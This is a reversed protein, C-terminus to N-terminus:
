GQHGPKKCWKFVVPHTSDSRALPHLADNVSIDHRTNEVPQTCGINLPPIKLNRRCVVDVAPRRAHGSARAGVPGLNQLAVTEQSVKLIFFPSPVDEIGVVVVEHSPPQNSVLPLSPNLVMGLALDLRRELVAGFEEILTRAPCPAVPPTVPGTQYPLSVHKRLDGARDPAQRNEPVLSVEAVALLRPAGVCQVKRSEGRQGEHDIREQEIRAPPTRLVPLGPIPVDQKPRLNCEHKTKCFYHFQNAQKALVGSVDHEKRHGNHEAIEVAQDLQPGKEREFLYIM